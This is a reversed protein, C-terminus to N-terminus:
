FEVSVLNTLFVSAILTTFFSVFVSLLAESASTRAVSSRIPDKMVLLPFPSMSLAPLKKLLSRGLGSSSSLSHSFTEM